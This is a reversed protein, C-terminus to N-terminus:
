CARRVPLVQPCSTERSPHSAMGDHRVHEGTASGDTHAAPTRYWCTYCRKRATRRWAMTGSPNVLLAATLRHSPSAAGVPM